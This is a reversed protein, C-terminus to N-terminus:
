CPRPWEHPENPMRLRQQAQRPPNRSRGAAERSCVCPKHLQAQFGGQYPNVMHSTRPHLSCAQVPWALYTAHERSCVAGCSWDCTCRLHLRLTPERHTRCPAGAMCAFVAMCVRASSAAAGLGNNHSHCVQRRNRGAGRGEGEGRGGVGQRVQGLSAPADLAGRLQERTLGSARGLTRRRVHGGLGGQGQQQGQGRGQGGGQGDATHQPGGQGQGQGQGREGSGAAARSAAGATAGYAAGYAVGAAALPPGRAAAGQEGDAEEAEEAAAAAALDYLLALVHGHGCAAAVHWVQWAPRHLLSARGPHSVKWTHVTEAARNLLCHTTLIASSYTAAEREAATWFLVLLPYRM